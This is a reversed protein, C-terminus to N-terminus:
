RNLASGIGPFWSAIAKTWVGYGRQTSVRWCLRNHTLRAYKNQTRDRRTATPCSRYTLSKAWRMFVRRMVAAADQPFCRRSEVPSTRSLQMRGNSSRRPCGFRNAAAGALFEGFNQRLSLQPTCSCSRLFVPRLLNPGRPAGSMPLDTRDFCVGGLTTTLPFPPRL